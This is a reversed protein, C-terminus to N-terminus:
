GIEDSGWGVRVRSPYGHILGKDFSILDALLSSCYRDYRVGKPEKMETAVIISRRGLAEISAVTSPNEGTIFAIKKSRTDDRKASASRRAM